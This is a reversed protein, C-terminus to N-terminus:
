VTTGVSQTTGTQLGSIGSLTGNVLTPNEFPL